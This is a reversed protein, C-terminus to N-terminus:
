ISHLLTIVPRQLRSSRPALTGGVEAEWFAPIVPTLWQAWGNKKKRKFFIEDLNNKNPVLDLLAKVTQRNAIISLKCLIQIGYVFLYM